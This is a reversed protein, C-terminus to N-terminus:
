RIQIHHVQKQVDVAKEQLNQRNIKAWSVSSWDVAYDPESNNFSTENCVFRLHKSHKNSVKSEPYSPKRETWLIWEAQGPAPFTLGLEMKQNM